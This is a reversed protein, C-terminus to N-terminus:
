RRKIDLSIAEAEGRELYRRVRAEAAFLQLPIERTTEGEGSEPGRTDERVRNGVEFGPVSLKSNSRRLTTGAQPIPHVRNILFRQDPHNPLNYAVKLIFQSHFRSCVEQDYLVIEWFRTIKLLQFAKVDENLVQYLYEM